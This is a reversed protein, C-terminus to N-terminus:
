HYITVIGDETHTCGININDDDAGDFEILPFIYASSNNKARGMPAVRNEM